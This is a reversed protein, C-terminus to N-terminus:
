SLHGPFFPVVQAGLFHLRGSKSSTQSYTFSFRAIPWSTEEGPYISPEPTNKLLGRCFITPFHYSPKRSTFFVASKSSNKFEQHRLSSEFRWERVPVVGQIYRTQWNRWKPVHLKRKARVAPRTGFAPDRRGCNKMKGNLRFCTLCPWCEM